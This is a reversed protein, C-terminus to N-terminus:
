ARGIDIVALECCAAYKAMVIDFSGALGFFMELCVLGTVVAMDGGGPGIDAEIMFVDALTADATMVVLGRAAPGVPVVQAIVTTRFAM